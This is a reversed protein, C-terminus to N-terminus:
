YLVCWIGVSLLNEYRRAATKASDRSALYWTSLSSTTPAAGVPSAGVVDSHDVIKNGWISVKHYIHKTTNQKTTSPNDNLIDWLIYVHKQQTKNQQPHITMWYIGYFIYMNKNHKTKNHISQWEIYGMFYICTKTTNQKTTSPNDNLIDWLIYVHKQQTKNQQPHITMWYIGYFIYMNKNHKTKNHISQWEIYGMFYICTKTTNQKTTSPNDNLIDWLIYVHKQQTKNQQPHITMWYIGYFIYMNKNHKTKNHISQWEIYGMFYICTKTTNQKTTSPNDNLIDWLIYVHKQQTKNQQPHITM